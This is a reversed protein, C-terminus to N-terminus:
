TTQKGCPNGEKADLRLPGRLFQAIARAPGDWDLSCDHFFYRLDKETQLQLDRRM